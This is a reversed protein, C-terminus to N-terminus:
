NFMLFLVEGHYIKPYVDIFVYMFFFFKSPLFSLFEHGKLTKYAQLILFAYFLITYQTYNQEFISNYWIRALLNTLYIM